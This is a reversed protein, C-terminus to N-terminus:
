PKSSSSLSFHLQKIHCVMVGGALRGSDMDAGSVRHGDHEASTGASLRNQKDHPWAMLENEWIGVAVAFAPPWGATTAADRTPRSMEDSEIGTPPNAGPTTSRLRYRIM